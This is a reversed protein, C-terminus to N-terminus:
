RDLHILSMVRREGNTLFPIAEVLFSGKVAGLDLEDQGETARSEVYARHVATDAEVSKQKPVYRDFGPPALVRDIRMKRPPDMVEPPGFFNTQGVASPVYQASSHTFRWVVFLANALGLELTRWVTATLSVGCRAAIRKAWALSFPQQSVLDAFLPAPLLLDAAGTECLREKEQQVAVFLDDSMWDDAAGERVALFLLEMVEHAFTFHQVTPLDDANLYIHLSDTTFGHQASDLSGHHVPLAFRSRISNLPVPLRYADSSQLVFIAYHRLLDRPSVHRPTKLFETAPNVPTQM